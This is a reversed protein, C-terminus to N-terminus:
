FGTEHSNVGGLESAKFLTNKDNGQKATGGSPARPRRAEGLLLGRRAPRGRRGERSRRGLPLDAALKFYCPPQLVARSFAGPLFMSM